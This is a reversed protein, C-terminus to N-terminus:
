TILSLGDCSAPMFRNPHLNVIWLASANDLNHSQKSSGTSEEAMLQTGNHLSSFPQCPFGCVYINHYPIQRRPRHLMDSFFKSCRTNAKIFQEAVTWSDCAFVHEVERDPWLSRMAWVPVDAGSCDTGLVLRAGGLMDESPPGLASVGAIPRRASMGARNQLFRRRAGEAARLMGPGWGDLTAELSPPLSVRSMIKLLMASCLYRFM